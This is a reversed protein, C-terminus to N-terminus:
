RDPVGENTPLSVDVRKLQWHSPLLQEFLYVEAYEKLGSMIAVCDNFLNIEYNDEYEFADEIFHRFLQTKTIRKVFPRDEEDVERLFSKKDLIEELSAGNTLNSDVPLADSCCLRFHQRYHGILSCLEMMFAIRVSEIFDMEKMRREEDTTEKKEESVEEVSPSVCHYYRHAHTQEEEFPSLLGADNSASFSLSLGGSQSQLSSSPSVGESADPEQGVCVSRSPDVSERLRLTRRQVSPTSPLSRISGMPAVGIQCRLLLPRTAEEIMVKVEKSTHGLVSRGNVALVCPERKLLKVRRGPGASTAEEDPILTLYVCESEPDGERLVAQKTKLRIGLKGPGFVIEFVVLQSQDVVPSDCYLVRASSSPRFLCESAPPPFHRSMRKELRKTFSRNFELLEVEKPVIVKDYDLQVIIVGELNSQCEETKFQKATM